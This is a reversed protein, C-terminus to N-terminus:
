FIRIGFGVDLNETQSLELGVEIQKDVIRKIEQRKLKVYNNLQLIAM